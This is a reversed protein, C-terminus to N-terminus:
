NGNPSQNPLLETENESLRKLWHTDKSPRSHAKMVSRQALSQDHSPQPLRDNM